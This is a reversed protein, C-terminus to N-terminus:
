RSGRSTNSRCRRTPTATSCRIISACSRPTSSRVRRMSIARPQARRGRRNACLGHRHPLAGCHGDGGAHRRRRPVERVRGRRRRGHRWHHGAVRWVHRPVQIECGEHLSGAQRCRASLGVAADADADAHRHRRLRRPPQRQPGAGQLDPRVARRVQRVHVAGLRDGTHGDVLFLDGRAAPRRRADPRGAADSLAVATLGFQQVASRVAGLDAPPTVVFSGAPVDIGDITTARDTIKMPVNRLKYRFAVMNNSGYHAIALGASGTGTVKGEATAKQVLTTPTDLIAKDKIERVDTLM